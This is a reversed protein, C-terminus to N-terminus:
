CFNNLRVGNSDGNQNRGNEETPESASPAPAMEEKLSIYNYVSAAPVMMSLGCLVYISATNFTPDWRFTSKSDLEFFMWFIAALPSKLSAVIAMYIAGDSYTFLLLTNFNDAVFFFIWLWFRGIPISCNPDPNLQWTDAQPLTCNGPSPASGLMCMAGEEFATSFQNFSSVEGFKPIFDTFFFATMFVLAYTQIWFALMLPHISDGGDPARKEFSREILVNMIALPLFSALFLIAWFFHSSDETSTKEQDIHFINPELAICLGVLM